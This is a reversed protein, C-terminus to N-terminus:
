EGPSSAKDAKKAMAWQQFEAKSLAKDKDTDAMDFDAQTVTADEMKVEALTLTGSKDADAKVFKADHDKAADAPKATDAPPQAPTQALAPAAFALATAALVLSKMM